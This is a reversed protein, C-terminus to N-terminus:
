LPEVALPADVSSTWLAARASELIARSSCRPLVVGVSRSSTDALFDIEAQRGVFYPCSVRITMPRNDWLTIRRDSPCVADAAM